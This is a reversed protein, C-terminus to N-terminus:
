MYSKTSPKRGMVPMIYSIVYGIADAGHDLGNKEPLGSTDYGQQEMCQLLHRAKPDIYLKDKLFALNVSNVRDRIAPNSPHHLVRWGFSRLIATDSRSASTKRAAGSADCYIKIERPKYSLGAKMYLTRLRYDLLEAAEETNRNQTVQEDFFHIKDGFNSAIAWVMKGINFDAGIIIEGQMPDLLEKAHEERKFRSYVSGSMAIFEGNCYQSFEQETYQERLTNLYAPPLFPNDSTKAKIMKTESTANKVFAEWLWNFGEPTSVCAIQSLKAKPDRVRALINIFVKESVLAAEDVVSWAATQGVIRDPHQASYFFVKFSQGDVGVTLANDAKHEEFPIGLERLTKTWEPIAVRKVLPYTPEVWIGSLGENEFGRTIGFHVGGSTKGSGYGGALCILRADREQILEMQHKLLKVKM